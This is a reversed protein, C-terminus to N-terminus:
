IGRLLIRSMTAIATTMVKKTQYKVDLVGGGDQVASENGYSGDAFM